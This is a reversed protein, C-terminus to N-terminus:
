PVTTFCDFDFFVAGHFGLIAGGTDDRELFERQKAEFAALLPPNVIYEVSEVRHGGAMRMFQAEALRFHREEEDAEGAFERRPRLLYRQMTGSSLAREEFTVRVAAPAVLPPLPASQQNMRGRVEFHRDVGRVTHSMQAFDVTTEVGPLQVVLTHHVYAETLQQCQHRDYASWPGGGDGGAAGGGVAVVGAAAMGGTPAGRRRVDRQRGTEWAKQKMKGVRPDVWHTASVDVHRGNVVTAAELQACVAPSYATWAGRDGLWEWVAGGGGAGGAVVGPLVAGGGVRGAAAGTPAARFEWVFTGQRGQSQQRRLEAETEALRDEAVYRRQLARATEADAEERLQRERDLAALVGASGGRLAPRPPAPTCHMARLRETLQAVVGPSRGPASLPPLAIGLQAAVAAARAEAEVSSQGIVLLTPVLSLQHDLDRRLQDPEAVPRPAPPPIAEPIAMAAAAAPADAPPRAAGVNPLPPPAPLGGYAPPQRRVAYKIRTDEWAIMTMRVPDVCRENGPLDVNRSGGDRAGELQASLATGFLVWAGTAPDQWEWAPTAM